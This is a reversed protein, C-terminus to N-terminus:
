YNGRYFASRSLVAAYRYKPKGVGLKLNCNFGTTLSGISLGVAMQPKGEESQARRQRSEIFAITKLIILKSPNKIYTLTFQGATTYPRTVIPEAFPEGFFM